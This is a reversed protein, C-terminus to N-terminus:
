KPNRKNMGYQQTKKKKKKIKRTEAWISGEKFDDTYEKYSRKTINPQQTKKMAQQIIQSKRVQKSAQKRVLQLSWSLPPMKNAKSVCGLILLTAVRVYHVYETLNLQTFIQIEPLSLSHQTEITHLSLSNSM